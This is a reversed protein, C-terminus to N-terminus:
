NELWSASNAARISNLRSGVGRLAGIGLLTSFCIRTFFLNQPLKDSSALCHQLGVACRFLMAASWCHKLSVTSSLLLGSANGIFPFDEAERSLPQAISLRPAAALFGFNRRRHLSMRDRAAEIKKEILFLFKTM